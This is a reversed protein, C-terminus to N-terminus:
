QPAIKRLTSRARGVPRDAVGVVAQVLYDGAPLDALPIVGTALRRDEDTTQVIRLPLTGIPLGGPGGTIEISASLSGARPTGYIEFYAVAAPEDRFHLAPTFQGDRIVGLAVASLKLPGAEILRAEFEYDAAGSRGAADSAAVRLRYTGPSATLAAALPKVKLDQADATWQATLRGKSDVLGFSASVLTVSPDFPEAIAVIKLKSDGPNRSAYGIVHMPLDRYASEDRLMDKANARATGPRAKPIIFEPRARVRVNDRGLRLEIRHRSGNRESADPEFGLLYYGASERAVRKFAEEGALLPLVEGGTVGALSELGAYDVSTTSADSRLVESQIV